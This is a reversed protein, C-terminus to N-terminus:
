ICYRICFLRLGAVVVVVVALEVEGGVEVDGVVFDLVVVVVSVITAWDAKEM